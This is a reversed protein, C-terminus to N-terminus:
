FARILDDQFPRAAEATQIWSPHSAVLSKADGLSISFLQMSAKIAETITIGRDKMAVLIEDGGKGDHHLGVLEKLEPMMLM